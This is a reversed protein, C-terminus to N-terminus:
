IMKCTNTNLVLFLHAMQYLTSRGMKLYLWIAQSLELREHIHRISRRKEDGTKMASRSWPIPSWVSSCRTSNWLNESVKLMATMKKSSNEHEISKWILKAKEDKAVSCCSPQFPGSFLRFWTSIAAPLHCICKSRMLPSWRPLTLKWKASVLVSASWCPFLYPGLAGESLVLSIHPSLLLELM